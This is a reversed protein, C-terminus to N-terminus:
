GQGKKKRAAAAAADHLIKSREEESLSPDQLRKVVAPDLDKVEVVPVEVSEPKVKNLDADVHLLNVRVAPHATLVKVMDRAQAHCPVCWDAWYEVITFDAKPLPGLPKRDATRVRDIEPALLASAEARGKGELVSTLMAGFASSYGTVNLVRRNQADYIRLQPLQFNIRGGGKPVEVKALQVEFVKVNEPWAPAPTGAAMAAMAAGTLSLALLLSSLVSRRAM